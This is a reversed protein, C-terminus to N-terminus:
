GADSVCLHTSPTYEIMGGIWGTLRPHVVWYREFHFFPTVAFDDLAIQEAQRFLAARAQANQENQAQALFDQVEANSWGSFNGAADEAIVDLMYSV